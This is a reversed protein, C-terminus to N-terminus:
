DSLSRMWGEEKRIEVNLNEDGTEPIVLPKDRPGLYSLSLENADLQGALQRAFQSRATEDLPQEFSVYYSGPRAGRNKGAVRLAFAGDEAVLSFAQPGGEVPDLTLRGGSAPKGEVTVHGNATVTGDGCGCIGLLGIAAAWSLVRCRRRCTM